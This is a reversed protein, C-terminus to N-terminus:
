RRATPASAIFGALDVGAYWRSAEANEPLGEAVPLGAELLLRKWAAGTLFGGHPRSPGADDIRFFEDMLQFPYDVYIPVGPAPRVCEVLVLAGGPKLADRVEALARGLNRAVHLVNVALVLDVSSRAVGQAALPQNVDVAGYEITAGPYSRSLKRRAGALFYPFPETFRYRAIVGGARALVAHAASGLGGGLELVEVKAAGEERRALAREVLHAAIRNNGSYVLDENDFYRQWTPLTSPGLLISAGDRAGRLFEDYGTRAADILEVSPALDPLEALAQARVEAASVELARLDALRGWPDLEALGARELKRLMWRWHHERAVPESRLAAVHGHALRDVYGNLYENAAFYRESGIGEPLTAFWRRAEEPIRPFDVTFRV